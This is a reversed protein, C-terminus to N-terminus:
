NVNWKPDKEGMRTSETKERNKLIHVTLVTTSQQFLFQLFIKKAYM